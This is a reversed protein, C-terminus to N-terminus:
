AFRLIQGNQRPNGFPHTNQAIESALKNTMAIEFSRYDEISWVRGRDIGTNNWVEKSTVIFNRYYDDLDAVSTKITLGNITILNTSSVRDAVKRLIANNTDRAHYASVDEYANNRPPAGGLSQKDDGSVDMVRRKAEYPASLMTNSNYVLGNSIFTSSAYIRAQREFIEAYRNIDEESRLLAHGVSQEATLSFQTACIHVAGQRLIAAKVVDSRLANATGSIQLDFEEKDVSDSADICLGLSMSVRAGKLDPLMDAPIPEYSIARVNESRGQASVRPPLAVSVASAVTAAVSSVMFHRRSTVPM